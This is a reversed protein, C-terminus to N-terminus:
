NHVNPKFSLLNTMNNNTFSNNLFMNLSCQYFYINKSNNNILKIIRNRISYMSRNPFYLSISNWHPGIEQYRKLLLADEEDSWKKTSLKPNLCNKWRERCQRPNRSKMKKSILGWKNDGYKKVLSCLLEDEQKTFKSKHVRKRNGKINTSILYKNLVNPSNYNITNNMYFCNTQTPYMFSTM